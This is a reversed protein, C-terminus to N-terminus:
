INSCDSEDSPTPSDVSMPSGAPELSEDPESTPSKPAQTSSARGMKDFMSDFDGNELERGVEDLARMLAQPTPYDDALSRKSKPGENSM